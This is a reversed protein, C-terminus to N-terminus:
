DGIRNIIAAWALMAPGSANALQSRAVTQARAGFDRTMWRAIATVASDQESGPREGSALEVDNEIIEIAAVLHAAAAHHGTRDLLRLADTLQRHVSSLTMMDENDAM